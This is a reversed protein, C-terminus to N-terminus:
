SRIQMRLDLMRLRTGRGITYTKYAVVKDLFFALAAPFVTFVADNLRIPEKDIVKIIGSFVLSRLSFLYLSKALMYPLPKFIRIQTIDDMYEMGREFFIIQNVHDFKTIRRKQWRDPFAKTKFVLKDDVGYKIRKTSNLMELQVFEQAFGNQVGIGVLLIVLWGLAYLRNQLILNM